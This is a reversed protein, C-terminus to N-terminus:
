KNRDRELAHNVGQLGAISLSFNVIANVNQLNGLIAPRMSDNM